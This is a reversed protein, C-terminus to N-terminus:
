GERKGKYGDLLGSEKFSYYREEGIIVSDLVEIGLLDGCEYLRRTIKEDDISPDPIGSPHNHVLIIGACSSVLASKFVERPHVMSASVSGCSVEECNVIANRTDLLLSYFRERDSHKLDKMFRYVDGPNTLRVPEYEALNEKVLRISVRYGKYAEGDFSSPKKPM